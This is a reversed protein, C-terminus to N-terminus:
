KEKKQAERKESFAIAVIQKLPRKEGEPKDKNAKILEAINKNFAEKSKGEELPM